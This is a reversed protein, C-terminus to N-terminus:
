VPLALGSKVENLVVYSTFRAVNDMAVVTERTFREYAALSAVRVVLIFDTLGTTYWCQQVEARAQMAAKFADIHKLTEREIDVHVIVTVPLGLADPDLVAQEARVVGAERLRKIRRQVAAASLGVEAGIREATLRTDHQWRALIRRDLTDLTGPPPGQDAWAGAGDARANPDGEPPRRRPGSRAPAIARTGSRDSAAAGAQTRRPPKAQASSRSGAPPSRKSTAM